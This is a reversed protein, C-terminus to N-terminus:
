NCKSFCGLVLNVLVVLIYLFIFVMLFMVNQKREEKKKKRTKIIPMQQQGLVQLLLKCKLTGVVDTKCAICRVDEARLVQNLKRRNMM